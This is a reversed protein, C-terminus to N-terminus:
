VTPRVATTQTSSSLWGETYELSIHEFAPHGMTPRPRADVLELYGDREAYSKILMGYDVESGFAREIGWVYSRLGDTSIQPRVALRSALDCMLQEAAPLGRNASVIFSPVLKPEAGTALLVM